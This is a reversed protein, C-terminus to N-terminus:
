QGHWPKKPPLNMAANPERADPAQMTTAYQELAPEQGPFIFKVHRRSADDFFVDYKPRSGATLAQKTGDLIRDTRDVFHGECKDCLWLFGALVVAIVIGLPILAAIFALVSWAPVIDSLLASVCTLMGAVGLLFSGVIVRKWSSKGYM